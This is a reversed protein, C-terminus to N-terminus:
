AVDAHEEEDVDAPTSWSVGIMAQGKRVHCMLELLLMINRPVKIVGKIWRQVSSLAVGAYRAFDVNTMDLEALLKEMRDADNM